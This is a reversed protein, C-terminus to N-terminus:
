TGAWPPGPRMSARIGEPDNAYREKVGLATMLMRKMALVEQRAARLAADTEPTLPLPGSRAARALQALSDALHSQGLKGLLHALTRHDKAPTKGRIQRRTGDKGFLRWRVYAALSMGAAQRALHQRAGGHGARPTM